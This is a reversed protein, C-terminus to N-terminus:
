RIKTFRLVVIDDHFDKNLKQAKMKKISGFLGTDEVQKIFDDYVAKDRIEHGIIIDTGKQSLVALTKILDPILEHCFIIDTGVVYKFATSSFATMDEECGWSLRVVKARSSSGCNRSVNQHLLRLIDQQDTLTVSLEKSMKFLAIGILGCGSGLELWNDSSGSITKALKKEFYALLVKASDWVTTGHRLTDQQQQIMIPGDACGLIDVRFHSLHKTDEM